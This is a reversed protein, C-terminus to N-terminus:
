RIGLWFAPRVGTNSCDVFSGVDNIHGECDIEKAHDQDVGETRLWSWGYGQKNQYAGRLKAYESNVTGKGYLNCMKWEDDSLVFIRDVTSGGSVPGTGKNAISVALIFGQEEETFATRLFEGNLWKRLTCEVWSTNEWYDNYKRNDINYNCLLLKWNNWEYIITWTIPEKKEQENQMYNGFEVISGVPQSLIYNVKNEISSVTTTSFTSQTGQSFSPIIVGSCEIRIYGFQGNFDIQHFEQNHNFDLVRYTEGEYAYGLVKSNNDAECRVYDEKTIIVYLDDLKSDAKVALPNIWVELLLFLLACVIIIYFPRISNQEWRYFIRKVEM